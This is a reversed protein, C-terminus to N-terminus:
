DRGPSLAEFRGDRHLYYRHGRWRIRNGFLGAFWFVFSLGDQLPVLLAERVAQTQGLVWVSTVWAATARLLLTVACLPWWHQAVLWLLLALPLPKAFLEGLYGVPRSRRTSRVWRLRHKMNPWFDSSGIRHEIVQRSLGVGMGHEAARMGLVFDEALYERFAAWGGLEEIASKRAAITPGVAFRMGELMRAALIGAIFETNMGAAELRSWFSGGAVALYPCTSVALEGAGFEGDIAKLLEPKVRVDSDSMVLLDHQAAATMKELAWVKRNPYQSVGTVILRSPVHPYESQLRTVAPVAADSEEAVALLIEFAPYEQEFSSRLNEELGEDLGSLPRLISIPANPGRPPAPQRKYRRAAELVLVCYVASGAVLAALLWEM